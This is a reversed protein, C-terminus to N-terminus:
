LFSEVDTLPLLVALLVFGVIVGLIMLLIPQGITAVSHLSKELEEEYIQAIQKMMFPMMGGEEAVGLMRPILPPIESQQFCKAISSGEAIKQEAEMVVKELMPHGMVTRGQAFAQIISLGGELLAASSRCFRAWAVKMFLPKLLPLKLCVGWVRGKWNKNFKVGIGLCIALLIGILLGWKTRLAIESLAFVAKTFPHLARGEFLEQLNPIVFFLLAGLVAFCFGSLLAPYLLAGLLQKKLFLQREMLTVLEELSKELKGGHEANAIMATYLLDFTGSHAELAKSFPEGSQIRHCLDLLIPHAKQGIYKEELASLAEFLPLGARLLRSLEKTLILLERKGLNVGGKAPVIDILAFKRSLNAKAEGLDHANVLGSIVKGNESLARYKFIPM